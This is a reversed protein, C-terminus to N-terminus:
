ALLSSFAFESRSSPPRGVHVKAKPECLSVYHYGLISACNVSVRDRSRTRV